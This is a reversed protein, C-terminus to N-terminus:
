VWGFWCAQAYSGTLALSIHLEHLEVYQSTWTWATLGVRERGEQYEALGVM